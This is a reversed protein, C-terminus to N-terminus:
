SAEIKLFTAVILARPRLMLPRHRLGAGQLAQFPGQRSMGMKLPYSIHIWPSWGPWIELEGSGSWARPVWSDLNWADTGKAQEMNQKSRKRTNDVRLASQAVPIWMRLSSPHIHFLQEHPCAHHKSAHIDQRCTLPSIGQVLPHICSHTSFLLQSWAAVWLGQAKEITYFTGDCELVSICLTM